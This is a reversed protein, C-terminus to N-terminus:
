ALVAKAAALTQRVKRAALVVLYGRVKARVELAALERDFLQKVVAREAHAERALAEIASHHKIKGGM